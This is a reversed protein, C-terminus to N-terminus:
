RTSPPTPRARGQRYFPYATLLRWGDPTEQWVSIICPHRQDPSRIRCQFVQKRAFQSQDDELILTATLAHDLLAQQFCQWDSLAFGISKFFRNKAKGRPHHDSLLYHTIKAPEIFRM